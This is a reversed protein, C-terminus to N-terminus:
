QQTQQSWQDIQMTDHGLLGMNVLSAEKDFEESVFYHDSQGYDVNGPAQQEGLQILLSAVDDPVSQAAAAGALDNVADYETAPITTNTLNLPAPFFIGAPPPVSLGIPASGNNYLMDSSNGESGVYNNSYNGNQVTSSTSESGEAKVPPPPPRNLGITWSREEMLVPPGTPGFGYLLDEGFVKQALRVILPHSGHSDKRHWRWRYLPVLKLAICVDEKAINYPITEVQSIVAYLIVMAAIHIPIPSVFFAINPYM